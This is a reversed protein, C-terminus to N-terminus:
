NSLGDITNEYPQATYDWVFLDGLVEFMSILVSVARLALYEDSHEPIENMFASLVKRDGVCVYLDLTRLKQTRCSIIEITM